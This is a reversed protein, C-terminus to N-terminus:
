LEHLGAADDHAVEVLLLLKHVLVVGGSERATVTEGGQVRLGGPPHAGVKHLAHAHHAEVQVHRLVRGQLHVVARDLGHDVVQDALPLAVSAVEM